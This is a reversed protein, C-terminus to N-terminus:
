NVEKLADINLLIINRGQIDIIGEKKFNSLTRILSEPAMGAVGALDARSIRISKLPHKQMKEAFLLITNATKQRVTGYAMEVLQHKLGSVNDQLVEILQFALDTHNYMIEKFEEQTLAYAESSEMATTHETYTVLHTIKSIGFIDGPKFMQTILNKGQDDELHSKILGTKVLYILTAPNEPKYIRQGKKFKHLINKKIFFVKLDNLNQTTKLQSKHELQIQKKALRSEIANILDVEEFPKTLYDDAGLYMGKRVDKHETKASLFIFPTNTTIQLKNLQNLVGYGDIKPMMVDCIILDPKWSVAIDIGQQGNVATKVKYHSLELLEATNERVTVDDEILLIRKM